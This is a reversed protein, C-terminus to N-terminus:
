DGATSIYTVVSAQYPIYVYYASIQYLVVIFLYFLILLSLLYENTVYILLIHIVSYVSGLFVTADVRKEFGFM